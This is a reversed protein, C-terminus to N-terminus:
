KLLNKIDELQEYNYYEIEIKGVKKNIPSIKVKTKLFDQIKMAFENLFIDEEKKGGKSSTSRNSSPTITKDAVNNRLIEELKRVSLNEEQIQKLMKFITEESLGVLMKAHGVSLTKRNVLDVVDKPLKLLRTINTIYTRTKGLVSALKEQTIKKKRLIEEYSRAEEIPTLDERQINEILMIELLNEGLSGKVLCPIKELEAIQAARWRREGAIIEYDEGDDEKSVIIPEIIGVSRISEALENLKEEEFFVRPQNKNPKIKGIEIELVYTDLAEKKNGVIVDKTKQDNLDEGFIASLGKGLTKKSNNKKM